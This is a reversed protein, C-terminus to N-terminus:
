PLRGNAMVDAFASSAKLGKGDLSTSDRLSQLLKTAQLYADDSANVM